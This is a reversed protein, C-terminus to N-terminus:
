AVLKLESTILSLAKNIQFYAEEIKSPNEVNQKIAKKSGLGEIKM